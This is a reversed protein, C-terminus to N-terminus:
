LGDYDEIINWKIEKTKGIIRGDRRDKVEIFIEEKISPKYVELYCIDGEEGVCEILLKYKKRIESNTSIKNEIHINLASISRCVEELGNELEKLSKVIRIRKCVLMMELWIKRLIPLELMIIYCGRKKMEGCIDRKEGYTKLWKCLYEINNERKEWEEIREKMDHWIAM